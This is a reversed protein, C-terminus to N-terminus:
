RAALNLLGFSVPGHYARLSLAILWFSFTTIYLFHCIPLFPGGAGGSTQALRSLAPRTETLRGGVGVVTFGKVPVPM